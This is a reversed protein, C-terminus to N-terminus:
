GPPLHIADAADARFSAGSRRRALRRSGGMDADPHADPGHGCCERLPRPAKSRSAKSRMGDGDIPTADNQLRSEAVLQRIAGGSRDARGCEAIPM